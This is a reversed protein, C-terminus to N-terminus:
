LQMDALYVYDATASTRPWARPRAVACLALLLYPHFGTDPIDLHLTSPAGASFRNALCFGTRFFYCCIQQPTRGIQISPSRSDALNTEPRRISLSAGIAHRCWIRGRWHRRIGWGGFALPRRWVLHRTNPQPRRCLARARMVQSYSSPPIVVRKLRM